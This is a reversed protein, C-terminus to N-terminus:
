TSLIREALVSFAIGDLTENLDDAYVTRRDPVGNGDMDELLIVRDPVNTYWDLPIKHAFDKYLQLRDELTRSQFDRAVLYRAGRLDQM